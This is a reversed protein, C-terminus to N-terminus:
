LLLPAPCLPWVQGYLIKRAIKVPSHEFFESKLSNQTPWTRLPLVIFQLVTALVPSSNSQQYEVANCSPWLQHRLSSVYEQEFALKCSVLSTRLLEEAEVALLTAAIAFGFFALEWSSRGFRDCGLIMAKFLRVKCCFHTVTQNGISLQWPHNIDTDISQDELELNV